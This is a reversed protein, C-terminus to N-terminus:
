SATSSNPVCAASSANPSPTPGRHGYRPKIAKIDFATFVADFATTFKADRDRILFRFQRGADELNMLLDRARQTLWAATPHATVGLIHVRCTAHEIAFFV